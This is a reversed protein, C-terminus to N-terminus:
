EVKPQQIKSMKLKKKKYKNNIKKDKKLNELSQQPKKAYKIKITISYVKKRKLKAQIISKHKYKKL